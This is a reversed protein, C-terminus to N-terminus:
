NLRKNKGTKIKRKRRKVNKRKKKEM